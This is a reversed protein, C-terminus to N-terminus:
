FKRSSGSDPPQDNTEQASQLRHRRRYRRFIVLTAVAVFAGVGSLILPLVFYQPILPSSVTFSVTASSSRGAQDLVDFSAYYTGTNELVCSSSQNNAPPPCGSAYIGIMDWTYGYSHDFSGKVSISDGVLLSTSSASLSAEPPPGVSNSSLIWTLPITSQGSTNLTSGYSIMMAYGDRQDYTMSGATGPNGEIFRSSWTGGGFVAIETSQNYWFVPATGVLGGVAPDYVLFEPPFPPSAVSLNEWSGNIFSDTTYISQVSGLPEFANTELILQSTPPDYAMTQTYGNPSPQGGTILSWNDNAFAWTDALWSETTYNGLLSLGGFLITENLAPDFAMAAYWRPSPETPPFLQTWTGDQFKWTQESPSSGGSAMQMLVVGTASDYTISAGASYGIMASNPETVNTWTGHQYTLTWYDGAGPNDYPQGGFLVAYGKAADYTLLELNEIPPSGNTFIESWSLNSSDQNIRVSSTRITFPRSSAGHPANFVPSSTLCIILAIVISIAPTSVM